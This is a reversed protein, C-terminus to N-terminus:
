VGDWFFLVKRSEKIREYCVAPLAWTALSWITVCSKFVLLTHKLVYLTALSWAGPSLVLGQVEVLLFQQSIFHFKLVFTYSRRASVAIKPINISLLVNKLM